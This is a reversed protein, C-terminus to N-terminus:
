SLNQPELPIGEQILFQKEEDAEHEILSKSLQYYQQAEKVQEIPLDLEYAVDEVSLNNARMSYILQGVTINRGKLYLQKRWRHPRAELYVYTSQHNLIPARQFLQKIEELSLQNVLEVAQDLRTKPPVIQTM